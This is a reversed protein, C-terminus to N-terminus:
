EKRSHRSVIKYICTIHKKKKKTVRKPTTHLLTHTYIYTHIHICTHAGTKRMRARTTLTHIHTHTYIYTCTYRHTYIYMYICMYCYIHICKTYIRYIPIIWIKDDVITNANILKGYCRYRIIAAAKYIEEERRTAHEENKKKKKKGRKKVKKRKKKKKRFDMERRGMMRCRTRRASSRGDRVRRVSKAFINKKVCSSLHYIYIYIFFFLVFFISSVLFINRNIYLSWIVKIQM